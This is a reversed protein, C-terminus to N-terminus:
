KRLRRKNTLKYIIILLICSACVAVPSWLPILVCWWPWSIVSTLRLVILIFALVAFLGIDGFQNKM